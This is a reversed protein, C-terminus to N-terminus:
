GAGDLTGPDWDEPVRGSRKLADRTATALENAFATASESDFVSYEFRDGSILLLEDLAGALLFYQAQSLTLIYRDDVIEMEM